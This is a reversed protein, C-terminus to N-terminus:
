KAAVQVPTFDGAPVIKEALAEIARIATYRSSSHISVSRRWTSATTTATPRNLAM